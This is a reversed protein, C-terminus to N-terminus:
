HEAAGHDGRYGIARWLGGFADGALSKELGLRWWDTLLRPPRTRLTTRSGPTFQATPKAAVLLFLPGRAGRGNQLPGRPVKKARKM